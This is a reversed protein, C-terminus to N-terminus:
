GSSGYEIPVSIVQARTWATGGAPIHWVTLTSDHVALADAQGGAGLAVTATGPPMAPLAHWPDGANTVVYAVGGTTLVAAEGSPGFSTSALGAGRLPLLASTTWTGEGASWAAVLSADRGSDTELLATTQSGTTILRLVTINESALQAPVTTMALQWAGDHEAFIGATGPHSCAGALLPLGAPTYAAATLARLGCQRGAPTGALTRASALMTWNANGAATEEAAGNAALALLRSGRPQMALSGPTSALATDLPGLASWGQGADGTQSLPTYTLLQSPRFATIASQGAGAAVVLGGNDATGPPTVLKWATSGASQTFLQWFNNHQASSGGMVVTAWTGGPTALSTELPIAPVDAAANAHLASPTSGCGVALMGAGVALVIGTRRAIGSM